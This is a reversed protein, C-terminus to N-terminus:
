KRLRRRRNRSEVKRMSEHYNENPVRRFIVRYQASPDNERYAKLDAKCEGNDNKDYQALDDWGYGWNGQLIKVEKTRGIRAEDVKKRRSLATRRKRSVSEQYDTDEDDGFELENEIEYVREISPESFDFLDGYFDYYEIWREVYITDGVYEPDVALKNAYEVASDEDEFYDIDGNYETTVRYEESYNDGVVAIDIFHIADKDTIQLAIQADGDDISGDYTSHIYGGGYTYEIKDIDNKVYETVFIILEDESMESINEDYGLDYDNVYVQTIDAQIDYMKGTGYYYSEAHLEDITCTGNVEVLGGDGDAEIVRASTITVNSFGDATITYGAGPGEKLLRERMSRKKDINRNRVRM